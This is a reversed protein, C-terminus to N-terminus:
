DKKTAIAFNELGSNRLLDMASVMQQATANNAVELSINPKSNNQAVLKLESELDVKTIEKGDLYYQDNPSISIVIDKQDISQSSSSSPLAIEIASPKIMTSTLMFFILLLFVVDVLPTLNLEPKIRSRTEFNM